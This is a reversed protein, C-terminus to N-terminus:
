VHLHMYVYVCVWVCEQHWTMSDVPITIIKTKATSPSSAMANTEATYGM